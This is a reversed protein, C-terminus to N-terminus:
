RDQLIDALDPFAGAKAANRISEALQPNLKAQENYYADEDTITHTSPVELTQFGSFWKGVVEMQAEVMKQMAIFQANKADSKAKIIALRYDRWWDLLKYM